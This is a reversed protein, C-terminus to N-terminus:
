KYSLFISLLPWLNCDNSVLASEQASM